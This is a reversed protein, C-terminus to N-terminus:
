SGLESVSLNQSNELAPDLNPWPAFLLQLLFFGLVKLVSTSQGGRTTGAHSPCAGPTVSSKILSTKGSTLVLQTILKLTSVCTSKNKNYKKGNGSIGWIVGGGEGISESDLNSLACVPPHSIDEQLLGSFGQRWSAPFILPESFVGNRIKLVEFAKVESILILCAVLINKPLSAFSAHVTPSTM